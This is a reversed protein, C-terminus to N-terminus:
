RRYDASNGNDIKILPIIITFYEDDNTIIVSKKTLLEYRKQINQLGLGASKEPHLKPTINNRVVLQDAEIFIELLLPREKLISNHKIANEALLQLTLPALYYQQEEENSINISVKFACGYRKEQIFLYDKIINIEEGLMIVDKERYTVISRFFDAMHEVYQVARKPDEEIEAVLTNFSNFLFHPNVQNRLIEFQSQIKEKEVRDWKQIKKERDKIYWYLIAGLLIVSLCLFWWRMWLPKQITFTFTAEKANEFNKNLSARVRFTYTGPSLKPFDRRRDNTTIWENGYGDLKYQYQIKGPQSYSLGSYYFSINNDGSSFTHGDPVAIDNLFLQINDIIIAPQDTIGSATYKYIANSGSFYIDGDKDVNFANVDTNLHSLGQEDDLYSVANTKTNVIDVGNKHGLYLNGFKDAALSGINM